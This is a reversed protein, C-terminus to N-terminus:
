INSEENKQEAKLKSPALEKRTTETMSHIQSELFNRLEVQKEQSMDQTKVYFTFLFERLMHITLRSDVNATYVMKALRDAQKKIEDDSAQNTSDMITQGLADIKRNIDLSLKSTLEEMHTLTDGGVQLGADILQRISESKSISKSIAYKEVKELLEQKLDVTTMM